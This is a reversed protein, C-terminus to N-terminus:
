ETLYIVWFDHALDENLIYAEPVYFYSKDGWSDGWSNKFKFMGNKYGVLFVCHGGVMKDKKGPMPVIGTSAVSADMFSKYLVLGCVIPNGEALSSKIYMEDQCIREYRLAQHKEALNYIGTGPQINFKSEIYPWDKEECVGYKAVGKIVDRICAGTDESKNKRGNYYIFLRSPEIEPKNNKILSYRFSSAVGQGTCSGLNGQDYCWLIEDSLDVFDPIKIYRKVKYLLDRSDEPDRKLLLKRDFEPKKKKFLQIIVKIVTVLNIKIVPLKM